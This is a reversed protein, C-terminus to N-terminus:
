FIATKISYNLIAALCNLTELYWILVNHMPCYEDAFLLPYLLFVDQCGFKALKPIHMKAPLTCVFFNYAAGVPQFHIMDISKKEDNLVQVNDYNLVQVNEYYLVLVNEYYLVVHLVHLTLFPIYKYLM